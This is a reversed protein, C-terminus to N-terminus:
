ADKRLRAFPNVPIPLALVVALVLALPVLVLWHWEYAVLWTPLGTYRM